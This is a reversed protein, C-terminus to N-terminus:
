AEGTLVAEAREAPTDRNPAVAPGAKSGIVLYRACARVALPAFREAFGNLIPLLPSRAFGFHPRIRVALGAERLRRALDRPDLPEENLQGDEPRRQSMGPEYARDPLVGTQSYRRCAADLEQGGIGATRLGLQFVEEDSLHPHNRHIRMWRRFLVPLNSGPPLDSARFPGLESRLWTRHVARKTLPNAGNNGDAVLLVGGAALLRVAEALFAIPDHIHSIAETCYIFDFSGDPEGTRSVDGHRVEIPLEFRRALRELQRVNEPFYDYGLVRGAGMAAFMVSYFGSGCGADLVRAGEIRVGATELEYRLLNWLHSGTAEDALMRYKGAFYETSDPEVGVFDRMAVFRPRHRAHDHVTPFSRRARRGPM